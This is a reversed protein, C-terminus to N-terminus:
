LGNLGTNALVETVKGDRHLIAIQWRRMVFSNGEERNCYLYDVGRRDGWTSNMQRSCSFGEAEMFRQADDIPTGIPVHGLISDVMRPPETIDRTASKTGCGAFFVSVAIVSISRM